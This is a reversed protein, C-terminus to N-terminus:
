PLGIAKWLIRTRTDLLGPLGRYLDWPIRLHLDAHPALSIVAFHPILPEYLTEDCHTPLPKPNSHRIQMRAFCTSAQHLRAEEYPTIMELTIYVELVSFLLM